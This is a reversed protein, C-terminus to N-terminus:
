SRWGQGPIGSTWEFSFSNLIKKFYTGFTSLLKFSRLVDFLDIKHNIITHLFIITMISARLPM